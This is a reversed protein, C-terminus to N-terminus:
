ALAAGPVTSTSMHIYQLVDMRGDLLRGVTVSGGGVGNM